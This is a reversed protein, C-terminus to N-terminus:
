GTPTDWEADMGMKLRDLVYMSRDPGYSAAIHRALDVLLMGWMAPDEWVDTAIVFHQDDSASWVRLLEVAENTQAKDPIPLEKSM